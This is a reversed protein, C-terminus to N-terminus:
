LRDYHSEWDERRFLIPVPRQAIWADATEGAMLRLTRETNAVAGGYLRNALNLVGTQHMASTGSGCADKVLLVRLGAAMADRVTAAVCAETWVGCVILWEICAAKLLPAVDGECFASADNKWTVHEGQLPAVEACIATFPSSRDSFIASGDEARPEFPRPPRLAYDRRFACHLVLLGHERAAHLLRRAREVIGGFGEVAYEPVVRQEEQFDVLLLASRDPAISM